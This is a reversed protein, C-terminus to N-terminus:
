NFNLEIFYFDPGQFIIGAQLPTIHFDTYFKRHYFM